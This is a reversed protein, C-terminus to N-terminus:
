LRGAPQISPSNASPQPGDAAAPNLSMGTVSCKASCPVPGCSPIGESVPGNRGQRAESVLFKQMGTWQERAGARTGVGKLGGSARGAGERTTEQLARCLREKKGRPYGGFNAHNM